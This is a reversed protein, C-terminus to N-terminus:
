TWWPHDDPVMPGFIPGMSALIPGLGSAEIPQRPSIAPGLRNELHGWNSAPYAVFPHYWVGLSITGETLLQLVNDIHNM